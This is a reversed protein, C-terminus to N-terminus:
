ASWEFPCVGLLFSEKLISFDQRDFVDTESGSVGFARGQTVAAERMVSLDLSDVYKPAADRLQIACDFDIEPVTVLEVTAPYRRSRNSPRLM